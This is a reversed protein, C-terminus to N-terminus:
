GIYTWGTSKNIYLGEVVDTCYVCLGVAPTAIAIRQANTMRPPLFGQTTSTIDLKASAVPATTGIGINGINNIYLADYAVSYNLSRVTFMFEGATANTQGQSLLRFKGGAYDMFAGEGSNGSRAGRLQMGGQIDLKETPTTVGIGVNGGDKMLLLNGFGSAVNAVRVAPYYITGNWYSVSMTEGAVGSSSFITFNSNVGIATGALLGVTAAQGPNIDIRSTSRFIANGVVELKQAPTATGIGVNGLGNTVLLDASDASNRVRLAIDTSLAGPAAIHLKATPTATGIGVNGGNFYSSGNVSINAITTGGSNRINFNSDNFVRVYNGGYFATNGSEVIQTIGTVHLKTTPATTGIGVNGNAVIRMKETITAGQGTIFNLGISNNGDEQFGEIAAYRSTAGAAIFKIGVKTGITSDANHIAIPYTAAGASTSVINLKEIPTTTGIGVNGTSGDITLYKPYSEATGAGIYIKSTSLRNALIYIDNNLKFINGFRSTGDSFGLGSNIDNGVLDAKYLPTSTGIGVNGLGNVVMLDGSDASNRVRLAIDTSLAGPAAVHLRATPTTTGIGVNGTTGDVKVKTAGNINLSIGYTTSTEIVGYNATASSLGIDIGKTRISALSGSTYNSFVVGDPVEFQGTMGINGIVDLKQTPAATGIGLRNNTDDWFFNANDQAITTGNSFLVSGSTLSPLNFKGNFTSWDTNSLAGRNTASATPLNFTHTDTVSSINFDAGATGVALYQVQSTLGNLATLGTSFTTIIQSLHSNETHMTITRGSHIVYFRVALRDTALLTTPPIALATFYLDISTGGTIYEPTASNTAILTFTAGNYKYLEIYFRPSGGNSSASFYTEFNWNGAPILLKNPDGVDTIFQAIYGDANITFDTGTGIVPVGNIEKYAVGGITGQSVSGNLYYSVSAGGGTSTPFNALTGDGRVYQSATGAGTIAFTGSSTITSPTVNFASPVTMGISTVASTLYTNTDLAFTGAATMKVFSTSAYTLGSLSTLNTALPQGGLGSLTYTPVNLTGSVLTSSGSSGITTLSSFTAAAPTPINLVNAILTAAGSGTTTLTIASQKNNFMTWDASSLYGNQLSSSQLISLTRNASLDGGGQLPTITSITRTDPVYGGLVSALVFSNINYYTNETITGNGGIFQLDLTYFNSTGIQTYSNVLYHGFLNPQNQQSLLIESGVLYNLFITIDTSASDIGSVVLQTINSFLTGDGGGASFSITKPINPAIDFRFSIQGGIAIKSNTNLYNAVTQATYNVTNNNGSRTGLFLDLDTVTPSVPYYNGIAM